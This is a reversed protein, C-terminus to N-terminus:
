NLVEELLQSKDATSIREWRELILLKLAYVILADLDFYHGVLLEDLKQWRYQDLTKEAELISPNRYASMAIHTIHPQAYGDGRIYKLPEIHKRVARIRVLENRLATEFIQWNGLTAQRGQYSFIDGALKIIQIDQQPIRDRCNDIFKEFSFPPKMMFHLMPLSSILYVYFDTM